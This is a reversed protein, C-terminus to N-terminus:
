KLSCLDHYTKGPECGSLEPFVCKGQDCHNEAMGTRLFTDMQREAADLDRIKGHPDDCYSMPKNCGPEPPLGFAYEVYASGKFPAAKSELGWISRVGTDLHTAGVARAMIHGGLTTVQHDGVATRMLVSHPKTGPLPDNEIYSTYGNPDVRDWLSQVLALLLQQDRADPFSQTMFFFFPLFDVSRNLLFSYPQGMVGLVGREVDPTISMYVGGFIGGQSIGHYYREDPNLYKGYTPDKSFGGRMLKMALVYNLAGQHLREYMATIRHFDGTSLVDLIFYPDGTSMGVLDVAFMAYGYKNMFRAFHGARIQERSGNLGHGYLMLSVPQTLAKKPIILEFPVDHMPSKANPEPMGDAGFVLRSGPKNEELYLPVRMTGEIRFAIDDPRFATDVSDITYKPGDAGVLDTAEDRMHLLWGTTDQRSSTTFDWALRVRGRPMDADALRKFIDEYLGRRGTVDADDFSERDRLARFAANPELTGTETTLEGLAVIYRRADALRVVPRLVLSRTDDDPRSLDLEAFHAVRKGTVTDLIVTPSGAELSKEPEDATVLGESTVGPLHVLIPGGPSFGDRTNVPDAVVAEGSTPKPLSSDALALRLGTQSSDDPRTFVNSPYPHLCFAPAIPDCELTPWTLTSPIKVDISQSSEGDGCALTLTSLLVALAYRRAGSWSHLLTSIQMAVARPAATARPPVKSWTRPRTNHWVVCSQADHTQPYLNTSQPGRVVDARHNIGARIGDADVQNRRGRTEDLLLGDFRKQNSRLLQVLNRHNGVPLWLLEPLQQASMGEIPDLQMAGLGPLGQGLEALAKEFRQAQAAFLVRPFSEAPRALRQQHIGLNRSPKTAGPLHDRLSQHDLQGTM